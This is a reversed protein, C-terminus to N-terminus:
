MLRQYHPEAEDKFCHFDVIFINPDASRWPCTGLDGLDLSAVRSNVGRPLLDEVWKGDVTM